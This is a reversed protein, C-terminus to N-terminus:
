VGPAMPKIIFTRTARYFSTCRRCSVIRARHACCLLAPSPLPDDSSCMITALGTSALILSARTWAGRARLNSHSPTDWGVAQFLKRKPQRFYRTVRCPPFHSQHSTRLQICPRCRQLAPVHSSCTSTQPLPPELTPRCPSCILILSVSRHLRINANRALAKGPDAPMCWGARWPRSRKDILHVPLIYYYAGTSM